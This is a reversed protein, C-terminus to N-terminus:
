RAPSWGLGTGAGPQEPGRSSSTGSVGRESRPSSFERLKGQGVVQFHMEPEIRSCSQAIRMWMPINNFTGDAALHNAVLAWRTGSDSGIGPM